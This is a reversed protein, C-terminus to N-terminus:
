QKSSGKEVEGRSALFAAVVDPLADAVIGCHLCLRVGGPEFPLVLVGRRAVGEVFAAVGEEPLELDVLLINTGGGEPHVRFGERRLLSALETAHHHDVELQPLMTQLAVLGAAAVASTPRLGGGLRQRLRLARDILDATGVLLAGNPAGLGKNLSIAISTAPAAMEAPSIGIASAANFFRAGDIHLGAGHRSAIKGAERIHDLPLPLGGSRNHTTELVLLRVPPRQADEEAQLLAVVRQLPLRGRDGELGIVMGGALASIGGAESLVCHSRSDAVIADGSSIQAMVAVLNAMTCTPFLLADEKGLLGAAYNELERQQRGERLGFGDPEAAAATMAVLM